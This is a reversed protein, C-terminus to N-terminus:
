RSLGKIEEIFHTQKQTEGREFQPTQPRAADRRRNQREVAGESREKEKLNGCRL